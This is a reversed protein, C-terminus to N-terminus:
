DGRARVASWVAVVGLVLAPLLPVVLYTSRFGLGLAAISQDAGPLLLIIAPAVLFAFVIAGVLTWGRWDFERDGPGDTNRPQDFGDDRGEVAGPEHVYGGDDDADDSM